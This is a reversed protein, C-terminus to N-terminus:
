SSTSPLLAIQRQLFAGTERTRSLPSKEELELTTYRMGAAASSVVNKGTAVQGTLSTMSISISWDRTVSCLQRM